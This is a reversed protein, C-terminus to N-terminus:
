VTKQKHDENDPVAKAVIILISNAAGPLKKKLFSEILYKCTIVACPSVIIKKTTTGSTKPATAFKKM